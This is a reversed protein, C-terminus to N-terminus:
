IIINGCCHDKDLIQTFGVVYIQNFNTGNPFASVNKKLADFASSNTQMGKLSLCKQQLREDHSHM